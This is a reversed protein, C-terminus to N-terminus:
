CGVKERAPWDPARGMQAPGASTIRKIALYDDLAFHSCDVGIGSQKFGGHPLEIAYRVGNIQVEGFRLGAACRRARAADRTFVYATLGAETDNAAALMADEDDLPTMLNVIPGFVEELAIRMDDRVGAMVTPAYFAGGEFGEPVCNGTLVVAGDSQADEVLARMRAVAHQDILPGMQVDATRGFGVKVAEARAVLKEAFSESIAPAAYIRNPAVCIQGANGFKLACIVDAALDLDADEFVLVPANGGLEMAYRKISTAGTRMVHKGTETSGILTLVAPIASSSIQDGIAADDGGVINVVGAPLGIAHCIRGVEYASLPTKASPKVVIPCGAAMAPGLKYALNLLPFNWALFAGVVGLPERVIRHTHSGQPDPLTTEQLERALGAYYELSSLLMDVDETAGSWPKGMEIHVLNTLSERQVAIANRLRDMWDARKAGGLAAWSPLAAQASELARKVAVQDATAISGVAQGTAPNVVDVTEEGEVLEGDVYLSFARESM